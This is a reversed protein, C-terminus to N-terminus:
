YIPEHPLCIYDRGDVEAITITRDEVKLVKLRSM